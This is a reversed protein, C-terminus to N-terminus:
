INFEYKVPNKFISEVKDFDSNKLWKMESGTMLALLGVSLTSLYIDVRHTGMKDIYVVKYTNEDEGSFAWGYKKAFGEIVKQRQSIMVQKQLKKSIKSM